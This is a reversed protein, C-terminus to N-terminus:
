KSPHGDNTDAEPAEPTPTEATVPEHAEHAIYRRELAWERLVKFAFEVSGFHRVLGKKLPKFTDCAKHLGDVSALALPDNRVIFVVHSKSLKGGALQKTTPKRPAPVKTRKAQAKANHQPAM